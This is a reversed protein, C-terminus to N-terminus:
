PLDAGGRSPLHGAPRTPTLRDAVLADSGLLRPSSSSGRPQLADPDDAADVGAALGWARGYPRLLRGRVALGRLAVVAPADCWEAEHRPLRHAVVRLGCRGAFVCM